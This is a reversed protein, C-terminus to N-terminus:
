PLNGSLWDACEAECRYFTWTATMPASGKERLWGLLRVPPVLRHPAAGVGHLTRLLVRASGHSFTRRSVEDRVIRLGAARFADRWAWHTRWTLPGAGGTLERLEPLTEAVYFGTLVRGGPALAARWGRLMEAPAEAWQLMSSSFIWAWPGGAVREARLERWAMGPNQAQGRAVMAASADTAVYGGDWPQTRATFLGTGAGIELAAGERRDPLWEALWDAMAAQVPAHADYRAAARGFSESVVNM